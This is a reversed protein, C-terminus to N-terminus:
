SQCLCRELGDHILISWSVPLLLTTHVPINWREGTVWLRCAVLALHFPRVATGM